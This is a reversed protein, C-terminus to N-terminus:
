NKVRSTVPGGGKRNAVTVQPVSKQKMREKEEYGQKGGGDVKKTREGLQNKKQKV